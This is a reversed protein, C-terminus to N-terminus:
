NFNENGKEHTSIPTTRMQLLRPSKDKTLMSTIPADNADYKNSIDPTHSFLHVTSEM